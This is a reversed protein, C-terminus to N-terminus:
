ELVVLPQVASLGNAVIRVHYSGAMVHAPLQVQHQAGTGADFVQQHVMRGLADHVHVDVRAHAGTPAAATFNFARGEAPNPWLSIRLAPAQEGVGAAHDGMLRAMRSRPTGNYSEFNGGFLIKGDPQFVIAQISASAPSIGTGVDFASDMSGDANLRALHRSPVGDVSVFGGGIVVKGDSQLAMATVSANPGAGTGFGPDKSGDANLRIIKGCPIGKYSNLNGAVLVKGDPLAIVAEVTGSIGTGTDFGTDLSGDANWRAIHGNPATGGGTIVKGDAQVAMTKLYANTNGLKFGTDLTGDENLLLVKRYYEDGVSMSVDGALLVKGNALPVIARITGLTIHQNFLFTPDHTGDANLRVLGNYGIAGAGAVLIKGSPLVKVAHVVNNLEELPAFGEDVSGDANIRAIHHRPTGNFDYMHGGVIMKGDPQLAISYASGTPGTGPDFSLDLAAPQSVAPHLGMTLCAAALVRGALQIVTSSSRVSFILM